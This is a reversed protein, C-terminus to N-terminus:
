KYKRFIERIQSRISKREEPSSAARLRETLPKLEAQMQENKRARAASQARQEPTLKAQMEAAHRDMLAKIRDQYAERTKQDAAGAMAQRLQYMEWRYPDTKLKEEFKARRSDIEAQSLQPAPNAARYEARARRMEEYIAKRRDDSQAARFEQVLTRMRESYASRSASAAAPVTQSQCYGNAVFTLWLLGSVLSLFYKKNM